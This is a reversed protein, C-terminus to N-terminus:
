GNKVEPTLSYLASLITSGNNIMVALAPNGTGVMSLLIGMTNIGFNFKINNNVVKMTDKSLKISKYILNLDERVLVVDAVDIAVQSGDGMAIGVNAASLAISDNIGDGVMAVKYGQSKLAEVHKAKEQPSVRARFENIGLERAIAQAVEENDGTLMVIKIGLNRLKQVFNKAEERIADKFAVLGIIKKGKTLYLVTKSEDHKQKVIDKVHKSISIKHNSMYRSSGFRYEEDDLKASIGLGIDYDSDEREYLEINKEKALNVIAEAIPHKLRQELSAAIKIIEEQSINELSIVDTIVPEGKTLTGTKDVVICNIKSLEELSKGGKILIGQRSAKSISSAIAIPVSVRLNTNYDITLISSTKVINGTTLQNFAALSLIPLVTADAIKNFRDYVAPKQNMYSEVMHAIKSIVTESSKYEVEIYIKGDVVNTGAYVKSGEEKLIPRDEGTLVSENIIAKGEKIIGDVPIRGGPYVVVIDGHNIEEIPVEIKTGDKEIYATEGDVNLLEEISARAKNSLKDEMYDGLGIFFNMANASLLMNRQITIGLALSDLLQYSLKGKLLNKAAKKFSPLSAFITITKIFINSPMFLSLAGGLVGAMMRFKSPEEEVQEKKPKYAKLVGLIVDIPTNNILEIFEEIFIKDPDYEISLSGTTKNLKADIIGDQSKIFSEITDESVDIYKLYFSNVRIRGYSKHKIDFLNM